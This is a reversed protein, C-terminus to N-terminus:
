GEAVTTMLWKVEGAGVVFEVFEAEQPDLADVAKQPDGESPAWAEMLKGDQVVGVVASWPVFTMYSQGGFSLVARIGTGDVKFHPMVFKRSYDLALARGNPSKARAVEPVSVGEVDMLFLVRVKGSDLLTEFAIQKSM